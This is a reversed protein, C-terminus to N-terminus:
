KYKNTFYKIIPKVTLQKNCVREIVEQSNYAGGYKYINEILFETILKIQGNKLLEDISGLKEELAELFMGDYITGLLYSPFYGFAGESWHIDQMLGESDSKVDINLYDKMKKNWIDPLEDVTINGKFLEREIEYRLIIHLCYTLEDAETRIPNTKIVNLKNVFEEITLDLNLRKKIEDYIPIWFNINRGLINEYFRSQSEHLGYLQVCQNSYISLYDSINQEFIGHGGEHIVTTVFDIPLNTQKFAIRVDNSCMKNTFGHHYIALKGSNMNFGIYNLLYEACDLLKDNTYNQIYNDSSNNKCKNILPMLAGKLEDFLKDIVNSTMGPEYENLMVDYLDNKDDIYSYYKKAMEVNKQLQPKYLEYNNTTKAEEWVKNAINLQKTYEEYFDQPIKENKEFNNLLNKIYRQEEAKLSTFESYNMSDILLQKYTKSTELKFKKLELSTITDILYETANKPCSTRLEWNLINILYQLKSIKKSLKVIRRNQEYIIVKSNINVYFLIM